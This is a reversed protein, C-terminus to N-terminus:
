EVLESYGEGTTSVHIIAKAKARAERQFHILEDMTKVRNVPFSYEKETLLYFMQYEYSNQFKATFSKELEEMNSLPISDIKVFHLVRKMGSDNFPGSVTSIVTFAPTEKAKTEQAAKGTNEGSPSGCSM